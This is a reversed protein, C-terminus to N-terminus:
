PAPRKLRVGRGGAPSPASDAILDLGLAELAAVLKMLSDVNGRIVGESAEMRQITPLSLGAAEALKRQDLGLLARAARLQGATLM